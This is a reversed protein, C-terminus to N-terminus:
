QRIGLGILSGSSGLIREFHWVIVDNSCHSSRIQAQTGWRNSMGMSGKGLVLGLEVKGGCVDYFNLGEGDGWSDIEEKVEGKARM